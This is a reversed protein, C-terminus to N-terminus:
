IKNLKLEQLIKESALYKMADKEINNEYNVDKSNYNDEHYRCVANLYLEVSGFEMHKVYKELLELHDAELKNLLKQVIQPFRM